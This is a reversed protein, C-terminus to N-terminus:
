HHYLTTHSSDWIPFIGLGTHLKTLQPVLSSILLVQQPQICVAEEEVTRGQRTSGICAHQPKNSKHTLILYLTSGPMLLSRCSFKGLAMEGFSFVSNPGVNRQSNTRHIPDTDALALFSGEGSRGSGQWDALIIWLSTVRASDLIVAHKPMQIHEM